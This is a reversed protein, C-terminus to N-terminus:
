DYLIPFRSLHNSRHVFSPIGEDLIGKFLFEDVRQVIQLQILM